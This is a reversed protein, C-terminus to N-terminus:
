GGAHPGHLRGASARRRRWVRHATAPLAPCCPRRAALASPSPRLRSRAAPPAASVGEAANVDVGQEVLRTVTALDGVAAANM